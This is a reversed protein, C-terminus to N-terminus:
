EEELTIKVENMIELKRLDKELIELYKNQWDQESVLQSYVYLLYVVVVLLVGVVYEM